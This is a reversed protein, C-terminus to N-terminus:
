QIELVFVNCRIESSTWSGLRQAHRRLTWWCSVRTLRWHWKNMVCVREARHAWLGIGATRHATNVLCASCQRAFCSLQIILPDTRILLDWGAEKWVEGAVNQAYPRFCALAIGGGDLGRSRHSSRDSCEDTINAPWLACSIVEDRRIWTKMQHVGHNGGLRDRASRPTWISRVSESTVSAVTLEDGSADPERGQRRAGATRHPPNSQVHRCLSRPDGSTKRVGGVPPRWFM